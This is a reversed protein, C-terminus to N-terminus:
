KKVALMLTSNRRNWQYGFGFTLPKPSSAAYYQRLDAAVQETAKADTLDVEIAHLAAHSWDPKRLALSVIEYGADIMQRCITAGIGASGGTVIAVPRESM